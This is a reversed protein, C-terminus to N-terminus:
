LATYGAPVEPEWNFITVAIRYDVDVAADPTQMTVTWDGRWTAASERALTFVLPSKPDMLTGGSVRHTPGEATPGSVILELAFDPHDWSAEIYIVKAAQKV